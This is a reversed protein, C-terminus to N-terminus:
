FPISISVIEFASLAGVVVHVELCYSGPKWNTSAPAPHVFIGYVGNTTAQFCDPGCDWRTLGPGGAPVFPTAVSFADTTLGIVPVRNEDLVQVMVRVPNHNNKAATRTTHGSGSCQAAGTGCITQDVLVKLELPGSLVLPSGSISVAGTIQGVEDLDILESQAFAYGAWFIFGLCILGVSGKIMVKRDKM